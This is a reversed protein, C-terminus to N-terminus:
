KGQPGPGAGIAWVYPPETGNIERDGIIRSKFILPNHSAATRTAGTSTWDERSALVRHASRTSCTRRRACCSTPSRWRRVLPIWNWTSTPRTSPRRTVVSAHRMHESRPRARVYRPPRPPSSAAAVDGVVQQVQPDQAFSSANGHSFIRKRAKVERATARLAARGTGALVALLVLRYFATQYRFRTSFDIIDDDEVRAASFTTTGSGTTRQGFGDWDDSRQVGPQDTRVAAIV